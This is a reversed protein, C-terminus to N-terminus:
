FSLLTASAPTAHQNPFGTEALHHLPLIPSSFFFLFLSLLTLSWSYFSNIVSLRFDIGSYARNTGGKKGFTVRNLRVQHRKTQPVFLRARFSYLEM